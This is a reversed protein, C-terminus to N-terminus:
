NKQFCRFEPAKWIHSGVPVGSFCTLSGSTFDGLSTGPMIPVERFDPMFATKEQPYVVGDLFPLNNSAFLLLLHSFFNKATNKWSGRRWVSLYPCFSLFDRPFHCLFFRSFKSLDTFDPPFYPIKRHFLLISFRQTQYFYPECERYLTQRIILSNLSFIISM